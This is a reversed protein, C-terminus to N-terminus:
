ASPPRLRSRSVGRPGANPVPEIWHHVRVPANPVNTATRSIVVHHPGCCDCRHSMPCGHEPCPEGGHAHDSREDVVFHLGNEILETIGADAGITLVAVVIARSWIVSRM